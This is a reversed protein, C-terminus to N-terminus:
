SLLTAVAELFEQKKFPKQFTRYAGLNQALTLFDVGGVNGGGSIAIIKTNPFENTIDMILETGDIGPMFIDTIILDAREQRQVELGLFGDSADIVEYGARELCSRIFARFQDDDDIVLIRAM